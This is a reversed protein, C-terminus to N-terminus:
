DCLSTRADGELWGNIFHKTLATDTGTKKSVEELQELIKQVNNRSKILAYIKISRKFYSVASNFEGQDMFTNGIAALDDAIGKYFGATRDATLAAHFFGSAREYEQTELMLSGLAYNVAATESLDETDSEKLAKNLYKEAQAFDEKQIFFIGKNKLLPFFRVHNKKAIEEAQDLIKEAEDLNGNRIFVAAKNSVAQVAGKYDNMNSYICFSEDYYLVARKADGTIRYVNGINNLTMAVGNLQDTATFFEHALFFHELSKRYCGKKFWVNGKNIELVGASIHKPQKPASKGGACASLFIFLVSLLVFDSRKM